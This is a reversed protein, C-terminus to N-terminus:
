AGTEAAAEPATQWHCVGLVSRLPLTSRRQVTGVLSWSRTMDQAAVRWSKDLGAVSGLAPRKGATGQFSRRGLLPTRTKLVWASPAPMFVLLEGCVGAGKLATRTKDLGAM